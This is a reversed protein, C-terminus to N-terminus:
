LLPRSGLRAPWQYQDKGSTDSVTLETYTNLAAYSALFQHLVSSFIYLDGAGAFGDRHLLLSIQRGRMLHEGVFRQAPTLTLGAIAEVKKQNTLVAAHDNTGPFIYLRLLSRLNDANAISLLNLYLHSLLRWMVDNGLPPSYMASPPRLNTFDALEPSSPSPQNIQGRELKEPLSGNTYVMDLSLIETALQEGPVYSVSLWQEIEDNLFSLRPTVSYTLGMDESLRRSLFPKYERKEPSGQVHGTVREVAFVRSHGRNSGSPSLLYSQSRHDLVIPEAPSSFLNIAPTVFLRFSDSGVAPLVAPV